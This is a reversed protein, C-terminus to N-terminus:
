PQGDLTNRELRERGRMHLRWVSLKTSLPTVAASAPKPPVHGRRKVDARTRRRRQRRRFTLAPPLPIAPQRWAKPVTVGVVSSAKADDPVEKTTEPTGTASIGGRHVRPEVALHRAVGGDSDRVDALKSLIRLILADVCIEHAAELYM